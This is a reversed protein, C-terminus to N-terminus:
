RGHRTLEAVRSSRDHGPLRRPVGPPVRPKSAWPTRLLRVEQILEMDISYVYTSASSKDLALLGLNLYLTPM